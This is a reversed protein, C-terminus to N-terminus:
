CIWKLRITHVSLLFVRCNNDNSLYGHLVMCATNMLRWLGYLGWLILAALIASTALRHHVTYSTIKM